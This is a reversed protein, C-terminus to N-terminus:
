FEMYFPQMINKTHAVLRTKQKTLKIETRKNRKNQVNGNNDTRPQYNSFCFIIFYDCRIVNITFVQHIMKLYKLAKM